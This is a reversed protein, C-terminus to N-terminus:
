ESKKASEEVTSAKRKAEAVANQEEATLLRYLGHPMSLLAQADHHLVIDAHGKLVLQHDAIEYRRAPAHIGEILEAPFSASGHSDRCKLVIKM